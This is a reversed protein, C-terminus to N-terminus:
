FTVSFFLGATTSQSDCKLFGKFKYGVSVIITSQLILFVKRAAVIDHYQLTDSVFVPM